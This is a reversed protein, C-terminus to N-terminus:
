AGGEDSTKASALFEDYKRFAALKHSSWDEGDEVVLGDEDLIEDMYKRYDVITGSGLDTKQRMWRHFNWLQREKADLDRSVMWGQFEESEDEIELQVDETM